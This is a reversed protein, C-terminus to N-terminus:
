QRLLRFASTWSGTSLGVRVWLATLAELWRAGDIGGIDIPPEWGFGALIEGVKKKAELDNGAIIMTAMGEKLRPATMASNPVINFCKVVKARPLRRQIREGLSDTTGVFLGSPVGNTLDLPNTVDIVVKGSFNPEGALRIADEAASGLTCLLVVEGHAAAEAFSGASVKGRTERVWDVVEKKKPDRTGLKVDHGKAAFGQGLRRGVDGSGVVGVKM